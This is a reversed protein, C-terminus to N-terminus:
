IFVIYNITWPLETGISTNGNMSSVVDVAGTFSIYEGNSNKALDGITPKHIFVTTGTYLGWYYGVEEIWIKPKKTTPPFNITQEFGNDQSLTFQGYDIIQLTPIESTFIKKNQSNYIELGYSM